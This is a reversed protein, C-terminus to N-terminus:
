PVRPCHQVNQNQGSQAVFEKIRFVIIIDDVNVEIRKVLKRIVSRKELWDYQDIESEIGSSFKKISSIIMAFEQETEKQDKMREKEEEVEKLHVKMETIRSEFEEQNIYENTYSDILRSIGRKLKSEERELDQELPSERRGELRQQYENMMGEPENLISKVKEWIAMELVDARVSKSNCIGRVSSSFAYITSCRYYYNVREKKKSGSRVGCYAYRCHQCVILGQLMYAAKRKQIRARERNEALQEEVANFLAEDVIRPIPIYIWNEKSPYTLSRKQQSGANRQPRIRPKAPNSKTKGFAAQGKYAPNKLIQQITSRNWMERGKQTRVSREKLRRVTENISVREEGIWMFLKKVIRAEEENIEFRREEGTTGSKIYRYGYPAIAMVSICGKRAAHLRGRRNREMIKAREYEAIAGQMQLLLNSEPSNGVQHNLFIVEAGAKQFEELLIMQHVYNRSLRDPSHIYVKDIKGEAVKDRLEDLGPRELKSGSYGNDIFKQENLLEQKDENIRRELEAVQSEITGEQVQRKSSVRAYLSVVKM